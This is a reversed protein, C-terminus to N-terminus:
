VVILNIPLSTQDYEFEFDVLTPCLISPLAAFVFPYFGIM